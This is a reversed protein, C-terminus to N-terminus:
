HIRIQCKRHIAIYNEIPSHCDNAIHAPTFDTDIATRYPLTVISSDRHPIQAIRSAIRWLRFTPSRSVRTSDVIHPQSIGLDLHTGIRSM